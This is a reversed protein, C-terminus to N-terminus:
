DKRIDLSPYSHPEGCVPCTIKISELMTALLSPSATKLMSDLMGKPAVAITVPPKWGCCQSSTKQTAIIKM